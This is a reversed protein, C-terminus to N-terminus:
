GGACAWMYKHPRKRQWDGGSNNVPGTHWFYNMPDDVTLDTGLTERLKKHILAAGNLLSPRIPERM